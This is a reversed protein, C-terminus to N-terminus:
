SGLKSKLDKYYKRGVPIPEDLGEVATSYKGGGEVSISSVQSVRVIASRHIRMFDAPLKSELYDMTKSCLKRSSGGMYLECYDGASRVAVIDDVDIATVRERVKILIKGLIRDRERVPNRVRRMAQGLREQSFPKVLYDAAGVEFAKLAHEPYATTIVTDFPETMFEEILDFGSRGRLNLDLFLLDLGDDLRVRAEEINTLISLSEIELDEVRELMRRLQRAAAPEDEVIVIRM